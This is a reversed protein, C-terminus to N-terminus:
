SGCDNRALLCIRFNKKEIGLVLSLLLLFRGFPPLISSAFAVSLCVILCYAICLLFSGGGMCLFFRIYMFLFLGALQYSRLFFLFCVFILFIFIWYPLVVGLGIWYMFIALSFCCFIFLYLIHIDASVGMLVGTCSLGFILIHVGLGWVFSASLYEM